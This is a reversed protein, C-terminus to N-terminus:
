RGSISVVRKGSEREAKETLAEAVWDKLDIGRRTAAIKAQTHIERAVAITKPKKITEVQSSKTTQMTTM